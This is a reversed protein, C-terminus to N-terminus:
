KNEVAGLWNWGEAASSFEAMQMKGAVKGGYDVPLLAVLCRGERFRLPKKGIKGERRVWNKGNEQLKRANRFIHM